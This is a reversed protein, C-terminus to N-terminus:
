DKAPEHEILKPGTNAGVLSAPDIGLAGALLRLREILADGTLDTRRVNIEQVEHLGVRNALMEVARLHNKAKPNAAVRLMAHAALVPGVTSIMSRGVELVAAEIKPSHVLEHGRVKAGDKVNSYGAAIAWKKAGGFPDSAMALVFKRQMETLAMM